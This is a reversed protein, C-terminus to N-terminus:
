NDYSPENLNIIDVYYIILEKGNPLNNLNFVVYDNCIHQISGTITHVQKIRNKYTLAITKAKFEICKERM